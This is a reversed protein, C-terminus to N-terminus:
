STVRRGIRTQTVPVALPTERAAAQAWLPGASRQRAAVPDVQNEAYVFLALADAEDDSEVKWGYLAAMRITAAKKEARGARGWSFGTFHTTIKSINVDHAILDRRHADALLIGKLSYLMLVTAPNITSKGDKGARPIFPAEYYIVSPQLTDLHGRLWDDFDALIAGVPAGPRGGNRRHGWIPCQGPHGASWGTVTALDFCAIGDPNM